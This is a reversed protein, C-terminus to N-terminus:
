EFPGVGAMKLNWVIYTLCVTVAVKTAQVVAPNAAAAGGTKVISVALVITAACSFIGVIHAFIKRWRFDLQLDTPIIANLMGFRAEIIQMAIGLLDAVAVDFPTSPPLSAPGFEVIVGFPLSRTLLNYTTKIRVVEGQPSSIITTIRFFAGTFRNSQTNGTILFDEPPDNVAEVVTTSTFVRGFRDQTFQTSTGRTGVVLTPIDVEVDPTIISQFVQRKNVFLQLLLRDDASTDCHVLNPGFGILAIGEASFVVAPDNGNKRDFQLASLLSSGISPHNLDDKDDSKETPSNRGFKM